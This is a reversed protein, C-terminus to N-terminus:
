ENVTIPPPSNPSIECLAPAHTTRAFVAASTGPALPQTRIRITCKGVPRVVVFAYRTSAVADVNVAEDFTEAAPPASVVDDPLANTSEEFLKGVGNVAVRVSRGDKFPVTILTANEPLARPLPMVMVSGVSLPALGTTAACISPTLAPEDSVANPGRFM